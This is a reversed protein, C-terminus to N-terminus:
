GCTIQKWPVHLSAQTVRTYGHALRARLNRVDPRKGTRSINGHYDRASKKGGKVFWVLVMDHMLATNGLVGWPLIKLFECLGWGRMAHLFLFFLFFTL